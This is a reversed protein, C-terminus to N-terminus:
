IRMFSADFLLRALLRTLIFIFYAFLYSSPLNTLNCRRRYCRNQQWQQQQQKRISMFHLKKMGWVDDYRHNNSEEEWKWEKNGNGHFTIKEDNRMKSKHFKFQTREEEIEDLWGALRENMWEYKNLEFFCECVDSVFYVQHFKWELRVVRMRVREYLKFNFKPVKMCCTHLFSTM